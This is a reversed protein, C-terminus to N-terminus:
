VASAVAKGIKEELAVGVVEEEGSAVVVEEGGGELALEGGEPFGEVPFVEVLVLLGGGMVESSGFHGFGEGDELVTDVIVDVERGTVGLADEEVLAEIALPHAFEGLGAM